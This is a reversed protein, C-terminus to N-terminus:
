VNTNEKKLREGCRDCKYSKTEKDGRYNYVAWPKHNIFYCIVKKWKKPYKVRRDKEIVLYIVYGFLYM